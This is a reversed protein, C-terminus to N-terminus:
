MQSFLLQEGPRLVYLEPEFCATYVAPSTSSSRLSRGFPILHVCVCVCLCLSSQYVADIENGLGSGNERERERECHSNAELMLLFDLKATRPM